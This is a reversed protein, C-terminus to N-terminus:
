CVLMLYKAKLGREVEKLAKIKERIEDKETKVKALEGVFVFVHPLLFSSFVRHLLSSSSISKLQILKEEESRLKEEHKKQVAEDPHPALLVNFPLGTPTTVTALTASMTSPQLM